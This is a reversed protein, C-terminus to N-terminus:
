YGMGIWLQRTTHIEQWNNDITIGDNQIRIDDAHIAISDPITWCDSVWFRGNDIKYIVQHADCLEAWRPFQRELQLRRSLERSTETSTDISIWNENAM